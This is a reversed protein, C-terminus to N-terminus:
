SPKRNNIACDIFWNEFPVDDACMVNFMYERALTLAKNYIELKKDKEVLKQKLEKKDQSYFEIELRRAEQCANYKEESETLKEELDAIQMKLKQHEQLCDILETKNIMFCADINEKEIFEQIQSCIFTFEKEERAEVIQSIINQTYSMFVGDEKQETKIGSISIPKRSVVRTIPKKSM